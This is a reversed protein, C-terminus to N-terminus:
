WSFTRGHEKTFYACSYIMNLYALTPRNKHTNIFPQIVQRLVEVLTTNLALKYELFLRYIPKHIHIFTHLRHTNIKEHSLKCLTFSYLNQVSQPMIIAWTEIPTEKASNYNPQYVKLYSFRQTKPKYLNMYHRFYYVNELGLINNFHFYRLSRNCHCLNQIIYINECGM